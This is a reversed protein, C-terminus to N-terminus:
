GKTPLTVTRGFGDRIILAEISGEWDVNDYVRDRFENLAAPGRRVYFNNIQMLQDGPRLGLRAAVSSSKVSIVQLRDNSDLEDKAISTLEPPFDHINALIVGFSSFPEREGVLREIEKQLAKNKVDLTAIDDAAFAATAMLLHLFLLQTIKRVLM